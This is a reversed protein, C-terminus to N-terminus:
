PSWPAWPLAERWGPREFAWAQLVESVVEVALFEHEHPVQAQFHRDPGGERYEVDYSLDDNLYVQMYHQGAPELDLRRVVVFRCTLSMDALLGHLQQASPNDWTTGDEDIAQLAPAAM